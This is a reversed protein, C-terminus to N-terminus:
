GVVAIHPLNRYHEAYDLGYGVVFRDEITFGIYEVKVDVQRRTPNSRRATSRARSDRRRDPARRHSASGAHRPFSLRTCRKSMMVSASARTSGRPDVTVSARPPWTVGSAASVSLSRRMLTTDSSLTVASSADSAGRASTRDM